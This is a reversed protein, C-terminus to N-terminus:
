GAHWAKKWVEQYNAVLPPPATNPSVVVNSGTFLMRPYVIEEAEKLPAGQQARLIIDFMGWYAEPWPDAATVSLQGKKLYEDEIAGSDTTTLKVKSSLGASALASPVGDTENAFDFFLYNIEPHTRLFTVIETPLKTGIDPEAFSYTTVSCSECNSSSMSEEISAHAHSYVPTAPTSIIGVHADKGKSDSLIWKGIEEGKEKQASAGAQIYTVGPLNKPNETINLVVTVGKEKLKALQHVFLEPSFGGTGIIGAPDDIVAQEYAAAVSSPTLGANLFKYHWGVAEAAEKVVAGTAICVPVGCSVYDVTKGTPPKKPLPPVTFSTPRKELEEVASTASAVAASSGSSGSSSSSSTTSGSSSSSSSGCAALALPILAVALVFALGRSRAGAKRSAPRAARKRPHGDVPVENTEPM